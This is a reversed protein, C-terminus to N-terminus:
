KNMNSLYIKSTFKEKKSSETCRNSWDLELNACPGSNQPLVFDPGSVFDSTLLYIKSKQVAMDNIGKLLVEVRVMGLKSLAFWLPTLGEFM